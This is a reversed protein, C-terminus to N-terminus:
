GRLKLRQILERYAGDDQQRIYSLLRKRRGIM